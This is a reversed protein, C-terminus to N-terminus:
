RLIDHSSCSQSGIPRYLLRSLLFLIVLVILNPIYIEIIIGTPMLQLCFIDLLAISELPKVLDVVFQDSAKAVLKSKGSGM